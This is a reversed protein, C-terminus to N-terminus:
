IKSLDLGMTLKEQNTQTLIKSIRMKITAEKENLYKSRDIPLGEFKAAQSFSGFKPTIKDLLETTKYIKVQAKGHKKRDFVILYQAFNNKQGQERAGALGRAAIATKLTNEMLEPMETTNADDHQVLLNLYHNSFDAGLVPFINNLPAEGLVKIAHGSLANQYNKISLGLEKVGYLNTDDDFEFSVDCTQQSESKKVFTTDDIQVIEKKSFNTDDVFSKSYTIKTETPTGGTILKDILKNAQKESARNLALIMWAGGIEGAKGLEQKKPIGWPITSAENITKFIDELPIAGGYYKNTTMWDTKAKEIFDKIEKQCKELTKIKSELTQKQEQSLEGDKSLAKIEKLNNEVINIIKQVRDKKIRGTEVGIRTNKIKQINNLLDQEQKNFLQFSSLDISKNLETQIKDEFFKQMKKYYKETGGGIESATKYDSQLMANYFSELKKIDGNAKAGNAVTQKITTYSNNAVRWWPESSNKLGGHGRYIGYLLYNRWKLHIYDGVGGFSAM